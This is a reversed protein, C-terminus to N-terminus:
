DRYLGVGAGPHALTQLLTEAYDAVSRMCTLMLRGGEEHWIAAAIQAARTRRFSGVPFDAFDVPCAKALVDRADKGTLAFVVRADSVDAATFFGGELGDLKAALAPARAEDVLLLLEDPSMWAVHGGNGGVIRRVAPMDCGLEARIAAGLAPAGLDGRLTVMGLPALREIRVIGEFVESM